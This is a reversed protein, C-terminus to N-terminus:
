ANRLMSRSSKSGTWMEEPSWDGKNRPLHNGLLVSHSMVLPWLSKDAQSPWRLAAHIMSTRTMRTVDKIAKEAVGNHHHGGVGSRRTWQEEQLLQATFEKATFVGNDTSYCRIKVGEAASEKEFLIKTWVTEEATFSSQFYIKVRGTAVDCYLSGGKYKHAHVQGGKNNFIRGPVRSEFQDLFM